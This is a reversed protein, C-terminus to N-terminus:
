FIQEKWCITDKMLLMYYMFSCFKIYMGIVAHYRYGILCKGDSGVLLFFFFFGENMIM